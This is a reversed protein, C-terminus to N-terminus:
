VPKPHQDAVAVARLGMHFPQRTTVDRWRDLIEDRREVLAEAGV